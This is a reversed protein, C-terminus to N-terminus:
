RDKLRRVFKLGSWTDDVACVKIDVLGADLGYLRVVSESLDTPVQSAKKPWAVWLMGNKELRDRFGAFRKELEARNQVFLIAFDLKGKAVEKVGEPLEGLTEAFDAPPSAM